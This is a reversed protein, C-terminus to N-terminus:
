DKTYLEWLFSGEEVTRENLVNITKTMFVAGKRPVGVLVAV